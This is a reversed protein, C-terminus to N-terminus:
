NEADIVCDEVAVFYKSERFGGIKGVVTIPDGAAFRELAEPAAASFICRVPRFTEISRKFTLAIRGDGLPEAKEFEGSIRGLKGGYLEVATDESQEFASALDTAFVIVQVADARKQELTPASSDCAGLAIAFVLAVLKTYRSFPIPNM